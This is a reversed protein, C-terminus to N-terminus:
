ILHGLRVFLYWGATATWPLYLVPQALQSPHGDFQQVNDLQIAKEIEAPKIARKKPKTKKAM